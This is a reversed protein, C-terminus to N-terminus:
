VYKQHVSSSQEAFESVDVKIESCFEVQAESLDELNAVDVGTRQQTLPVKPGGQIIYM